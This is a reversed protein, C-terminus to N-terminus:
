DLYVFENLNMLALCFDALADTTAADAKAGTGLLGTQKELFGAALDQEAATPSRGLTLRYALPIRGAADPAERVVRAAVARASEAMEPANLLSLAQPASTTVERRACSANTDPADFVELAPFQLNRRVFTYLSRRTQDAANKSVPWVSAKPPLAEVPIPPFVGPGGLKPNLRGSIALVSDRIAEGELRKRNMRSFLENDPDAALAAASGQSSQKYTNSLVITRILGKVSWPSSIPFNPVSSIPAGGGANGRKGMEGNGAGSAGNGRAFSVALWDMLGLHTPSEGRVGFDSPTPVIGRGFLHQWVRNVMVRSTLSNEP